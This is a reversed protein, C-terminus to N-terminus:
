LIIQYGPAAVRTAQPIIIRRVVKLPSMGISLGAEYQSRSVSNLAARIDESMFAAYNLSMCIVLAQFQNLSKITSSVQALGYYFWFLQAVFPTGRFFSVYVSTIGYLGKIKYQRIIAVILALLLSCLITVVALKLTEPLFKLIKPFLEFFLNIDFRDM